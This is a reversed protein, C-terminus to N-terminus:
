SLRGQSQLILQAQHLDEPQTIKINDTHGEILMPKAGALEIASAEDTILQNQELAAKISRFLLGVRFMQPTQAHWLENRDVTMAIRGHENARKMTDKVPVALIGGVEDDVLSSLMLDLDQQRLCPRAADHVLVWDDDNAMPLIHLLANFVSHCREQGGEIKNVPVENDIKLTEWHSDNNAIAVFIEKIASHHAFCDLTHELITKDAIQLYQKPKGVQMRSGTGAAPIIVWYNLDPQHGSSSM